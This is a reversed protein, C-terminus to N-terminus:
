EPDLLCPQYYKEDELLEKRIEFLGESNMIDIFETTCM